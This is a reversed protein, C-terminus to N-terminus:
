AFAFGSDQYNIKQSHPSTFRLLLSKTIPIPGLDYDARGTYRPNGSRLVQKHGPPLRGQTCKQAWPLCNFDINSM